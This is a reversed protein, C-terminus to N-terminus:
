RLEEDNIENIDVTNGKHDDPNSFGTNVQINMVMNGTGKARTEEKQTEIEQKSLDLFAKQRLKAIDIREKVTAVNNLRDLDALDDVVQDQFVERRASRAEKIASDFSPAEKRWRYFAGYSPMHPLSLISKITEGSSIRSIIEDATAPNFRHISPFLGLEGTQLKMSKPILLIKKTDPDEYRHYKDPTYDDQDHPELSNPNITTVAGTVIDVRELDGSVSARLYYKKDHILVADKAKQLTHLLSSDPSARDTQLDNPQPLPLPPKPPKTENM